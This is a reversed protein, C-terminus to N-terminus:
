KSSAISNAETLVKSAVADGLGLANVRDVDAARKSLFDKTGDSLDNTGMTLNLVQANRGIWPAATLADPFKLGNALWANTDSIANGDTDYNVFGLGPFQNVASPTDSRMAFEAVAAATFYRDAGGIRTNSLGADEMSKKVGDSVANESGIILGHQVDLREIQAKASDSLSDPATLILPLAQDTGINIPNLVGDNMGATLVGAALADPFNDGRAFIATYKGAEGSKYITKGITRNGGWAAAYMNVLQNTTYRTDNQPNASSIRQVQLKAGTTELGGYNPDRDAGSGAWRYTNLEALKAEVDKSVAAAGGVIFVKDVQRDRLAEITDAPLSGRQTLLIPAGMRQSLYSASLADPFNEGSAIIANRVKGHTNSKDGFAWREAIKAATEYRNNGGIRASESSATGIQTLEDYPAEIDSQNVAIGNRDTVSIGTGGAVTFQVLEGLGAFQFPGGSVGTAAAVPSANVGNSVNDFVITNTPGATVHYIDYTGAVDADASSLGVGSGASATTANFQVVYNGDALTGGAFRFGTPNNAVTAVAGSGGAVTFSTNASAGTVQLVDTPVPGSGSNSQVTFQNTNVNSRTATLGAGSLTLGDASVTYTGNALVGAGSLNTVSIPGVTPQASGTLSPDVVTFTGTTPTGATVALGTLAFSESTTIDGSATTVNWTSAARTLKLGAPGTITDGVEIVNDNMNTSAGPAYTYTGYPLRLAGPSSALSTPATAGAGGTALTGADAITIQSGSVVNAITYTDSGAATKAGAPWTATFTNTSGSRALSLGGPGVITDANIARYTGAPLHDSGAVAVLTVANTPPAITSNAQQATVSAPANVTRTEPTSVATDTAGNWAAFAGDNQIARSKTQAATRTLTSTGAQALWVDKATNSPDSISGGTVNFELSGSKSASLMLGSITIKSAKSHDAGALTFRIGTYNGATGVFSGATVTENTGGNSITFKVDEPKANAILAGAGGGINLTYTGNDLSFGQTEEITLDGLSQGLRDAVIDTKSSGIKVPSVYAPVTYIGIERYKVPATSRGKENGYFWPSEAYDTGSADTNALFPVVRLEGPTVNAGLDVKLGKITVVWVANPDGDAKVDAVRLRLNDNGQVNNSQNLSMTFKPATTPKTNRLSSAAQTSDAAWPLTKTETNGYSATGPADTNASVETRPDMVQSVEVEVGELGSFGLFTGSDKNSLGDDTETASRDLLRLDLNDGSVFRNPLVLRVDAIEQNKQGAWVLTAGQNDSATGVPVNNPGAETDVIGITGMHGNNFNNAASPAADVPMYRGASDRDWSAFAAPGFSTMVLAAAAVTATGRGYKRLKAASSM